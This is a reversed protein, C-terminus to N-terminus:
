GSARLPQGRLAAARRGTVDHQADRTHALADELPTIGDGRYVVRSEIGGTRQPGRITGRAGAKHGFTSRVWTVRLAGPQVSADAAM